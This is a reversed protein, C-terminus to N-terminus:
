NESAIRRIEALADFESRAAPLNLKKSLRIKKPVAADILEDLSKRGLLALMESTEKADPGIHRRVFQDPHALSATSLDKTESFSMSPLNVRSVSAPLIM